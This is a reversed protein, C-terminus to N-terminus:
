KIGSGLHWELYLELPFRHVDFVPGGIPNFRAQSAGLVELPLFSEALKAGRTIM